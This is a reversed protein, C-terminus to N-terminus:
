RPRERPPRGLVVTRSLVEKPARANITAASRAHAQLRAQEAHLEEGFLREMERQMALPNAVADGLATIAAAFEAASQFRRAPDRQLAKLLLAQLPKPLAAIKAAEAEGVGGAAKFLRDRPTEGDYLPAGALAAYMVLAVSAIDTRADVATGHAQEPAMFRVNGKVTGVQTETLRNKAKAIGFDLLKVEGRASVLINQPSVDRHVIGMPKGEDDTRTHAYELAQLTERIAYLVLAPDVGKGDVAKARATLRGLDRGLIYEQAMFYEDGVKGFDFVPIINSHVLSSALRAEDIFMDVLDKRGLLKGRLRKVVFHRKFGEAGHVVATYVEAMGGEGLRDLLTYRGFQQAPTPPTPALGPVPRPQDTETAPGAAQARPDTRRPDSHGNASPAARAPLAITAGALNAQVPPARSKRLGLALAIAALLGTVGWLALFVDTGPGAPPTEPATWLFLGRSLQVSQMLGPEGASAQPGTAAAELLRKLKATGASALVAKGDAVVVAARLRQALAVVAEEGLPKGLLLVPQTTRGPKAIVATALLYAAGNALRVGAAHQHARAGSILDTADLEGPAGEVGDLTDGLAVGYVSAHRRVTEWWPESTFGDRLTNWNVIGVQGRLVPLSSAQQALSQLAALQENLAQEAEARVQEGLRSQTQRAEAERTLDLYVTGLGALAILAIAAAFGVKKYPRYSM